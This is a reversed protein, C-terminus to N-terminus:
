TWRGRVHHCRSVQFHCSVCGLGYEMSQALIDRQSKPADLNPSLDGIVLSMSNAPEWLTQEM